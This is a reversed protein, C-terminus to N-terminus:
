DGAWTGREWLLLGGRNNDEAALVDGNSTQRLVRDLNAITGNRAKVRLQDLFIVVIPKVIQLCRVSDENVALRHGIVVELFGALDREAAHFALEARFGRGFRLDMGGM